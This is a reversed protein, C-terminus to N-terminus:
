VLSAAPKIQGRNEDNEIGFEKPKVRQVCRQQKIHVGTKFDKIRKKYQIGGRNFPGESNLPYVLVTCYPFYSIDSESAPTLTTALILGHNVDVVSAHEKLGYHRGTRTRVCVPNHELTEKMVLDAFTFSENLRKFGM